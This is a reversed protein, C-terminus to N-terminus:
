KLEFMREVRAAIEEKGLQRLHDALAMKDSVGADFQKRARDAEQELREYDNRAEPSGDISVALDDMGPHAETLRNIRETAESMREALQVQEDISLELTPKEMDNEMLLSCRVEICLLM